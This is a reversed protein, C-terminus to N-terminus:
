FRATINLGVLPALDFEEKRLLNGSPSEVRLEGNAVAGIYANFTISRDFSRSARLYVPVGSIQGIGNAVPGSASLRWRSERFAAGVGVTWGNDFLYDLELGAPGTPGAALPNILRWRESFRWDVILFPFLSTDEIREFAALGIGLVNGDPFRKAATLTAGWSLADSSQAGNEKFWDFAPTVGLSWGDSAAFSLPVSFGTRQLIRWPAVGGFAKPDDFSYDFYDYNVTIGARNGNGFGTSTGARLIVGGVSFGGDTDLDADEFVPSVSVFSQWGSGQASAGSACGLLLLFAVAARRPRLFLSM